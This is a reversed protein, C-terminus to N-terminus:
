GENKNSVKAKMFVNMQICVKAKMKIVTEANCM